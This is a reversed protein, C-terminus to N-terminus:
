SPVLVLPVNSELSDPNVMGDATVLVAPLRYRRKVVSPEVVYEPKVNEHPGGVAAGVAMGDKAGVAVGVNVGVVAAGVNAGVVAAGDVVAEALEAPM